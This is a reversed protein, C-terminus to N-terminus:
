KKVPADKISLIHLPDLNDVFGEKDAIVVTRQTVFIFEPHPVPFERGDSTYIRFPRFGGPQIRKRIAEVNM